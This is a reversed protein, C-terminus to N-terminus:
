AGVVAPPDITALLADGGRAPVAGVIPIGAGAPGSPAERPSPEASLPALADYLRCFREFAAAHGAMRGPDPEFIREVRVRERVFRLDPQAGIGVLACAAAGVAAADQPHEITAIPRGLIDAIIQTWSTGIFGGGVGRISGIPVGYAAGYELAWRMQYGVGEM